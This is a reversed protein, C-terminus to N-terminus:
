GHAVARSDDIFRHSDDSRLTRAMLLFMRLIREIMVYTCYVRLVNYRFSLIRGGASLLFTRLKNRNNSHNNNRNIRAGAPCKVFFDSRKRM